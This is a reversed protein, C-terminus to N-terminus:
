MDAAKERSPSLCSSSASRTASSLDSRVVCAVSSSLAGSDSLGAAKGGDAGVTRPLKAAAAGAPPSSMCSSSSSRRRKLGDRPSAGLKSLRATATIALLRVKAGVHLASGDLTEIHQPLAYMIRSMRYASYIKGDKEEYHMFKEVRAMEGPFGGWYNVVQGICPWPEYEAAGRTCRLRM